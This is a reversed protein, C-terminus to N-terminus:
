KTIYYFSSHPWNRDHHCLSIARAPFRVCLELRQIRGRSILQLGQPANFMCRRFQESDLVSQFRMEGLMEIVNSICQFRMESATEIWSAKFVCRLHMKLGNEIWKWWMSFANFVCRLHMEVGRRKSFADWICKWDMNFICRMYCRSVNSFHDTLFTLICVLHMELTFFICNQHM